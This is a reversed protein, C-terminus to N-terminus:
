SCAEEGGVAESYEDTVVLESRYQGFGKHLFSGTDERKGKM